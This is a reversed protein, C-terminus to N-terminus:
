HAGTSILRRHRKSPYSTKIGDCFTQSTRIHLVLWPSEAPWPFRALWSPRVPCHSMAPCKAPCAKEIVKALGPPLKKSSTPTEPASESAKPLCKPQGVVGLIPETPAFNLELPVWSSGLQPWSVSQLGLISVLLSWTHDLLTGLSDLHLGLAAGHPGFHGVPAASSCNM